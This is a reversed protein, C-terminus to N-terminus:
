MEPEDSQDMLIADDFYDEELLSAVWRDDCLKNAIVMLAKAQDPVTYDDSESAPVYLKVLGDRTVILAYDSPHILYRKM